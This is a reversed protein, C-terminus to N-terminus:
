FILIGKKFECGPEIGFSVHGVFRNQKGSRKRPIEKINDRPQLVNDRRSLGVCVEKDRGRQLGAPRGGKGGKNITHIHMQWVEGGTAM